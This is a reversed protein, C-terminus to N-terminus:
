ILTWFHRKFFQCCTITAPTDCSPPQVCDVSYAMVASTNPLAERSLSQFPVAERWPGCTILKSRIGVPLLNASINRM